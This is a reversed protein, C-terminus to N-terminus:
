SSAEPVVPTPVLPTMGYRASLLSWRGLSTKISAFLTRLHLASRGLGGGGAARDRDKAVAGKGGSV